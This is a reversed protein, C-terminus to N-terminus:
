RGALYRYAAEHEAWSEEALFRQAFEREEPFLTLPEDLALAQEFDARALKVNGGQAYMQGRWYLDPIPLLDLAQGLEIAQTYYFIARSTNGLEEHYMGLDRFAKSAQISERGYRLARHLRRIARRPDTEGENKDILQKAREEDAFEKFAQMQAMFGVNEDSGSM